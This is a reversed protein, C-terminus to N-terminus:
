MISNIVTELQDVLRPQDYMEAVKRARAGMAMLEDKPLKSIRLMADAISAATQQEDVVGCNYRSVLNYGWTGCNIVPKGSALYDFLKQQSGGYKMISTQLYTMINADSDGLIIPLKAKEFRGFFEINHLHNAQCYKKADEEEPGNGYMRIFINSNNEKLIKAAECIQIIHNAPRMSGSYTIIFQDASHATKEASFLRANRDFEALDCGMNIHYVHDFDIKDKYKREQLYDKGGEMSFIIANANIYAYQEEKYLIRIIPNKETLSTYAVISEPWLDAVDVIIPIGKYLRRIARIYFPGSSIILDPKENLEKLQKLRSIYMMMNIARKITNNYQICDIYIYRVGDVKTIHEGLEKVVDIATNHVTSAGIITVEHGREVLIKAWNHYRLMTNYPPQQSDHSVIWINLNKM